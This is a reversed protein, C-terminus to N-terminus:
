KESHKVPAKPFFTAIQQLRQLHKEREEQLTLEPEM